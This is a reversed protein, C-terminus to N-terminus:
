TRKFFGWAILYIKPKIKLNNADLDSNIPHKLVANIFKYAGFMNAHDTLGIAPM